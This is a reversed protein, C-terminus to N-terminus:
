NLDHTVVHVCYKIKLALLKSNTLNDGNKEQKKEEKTFGMSLLKAKFGWERPERTLWM